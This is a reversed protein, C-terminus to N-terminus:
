RFNGAMWEPAIGSATFHYAALGDRNSAAEVGRLANTLGHGMVQPDYHTDDAAGTLLVKAYQNGLPGGTTNQYATVILAVIATTAPSSLSTGCWAGWPRCGGFQSLAGDCSRRGGV